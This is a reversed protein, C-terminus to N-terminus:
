FADVHDVLVINLNPLDHQRYALGILFPKPLKDVFIKERPGNSNDSPIKVNIALDELESNSRPVLDGQFPYKTSPHEYYIGGM